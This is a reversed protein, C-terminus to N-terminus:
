QKRNNNMKASVEVPVKWLLSDLTIYFHMQIVDLFLLPSQNYIRLM